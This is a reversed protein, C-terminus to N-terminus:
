SPPRPASSLAAQYARNFAAAFLEVFADSSGQAVGDFEREYAQWLAAERAGPMVRALLGGEQARSRIAAPSFRDLTSNLAGQMGELTAARHAELDAFAESVAREQPMVGPASGLLAALARDPPLSKLPNAAGLEFITREAGIETKARARQALQEALGAVLQRTLAGAAALITVESGSVQARSLGAASLFADLGETRAEAPEGVSIAIVCGGIAIVDGAAVPAPRELQRGNLVTGGGLDVVLWQGGRFGFQCHREAVGDFLRWDCDAGSGVVLDSGALSAHPREGPAVRGRRLSLFFAM